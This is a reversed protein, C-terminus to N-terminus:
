RRTVEPQEGILGISAVTDDDNLRMVRVGQTTRGIVPIDKVDVRITQGKTSIMLVEATDDDLARVTILNGTKSTVVAAKIGIGGRKHTPFNSVKTIKGYGNMSMVLLQLDERALDMGVVRDGQRLRIGRVGRAARGMPRADSEKFRIAQGFATSIVVEDNGSSLSVWRLEDDKDLNITILGSNRINAYDKIPTKKVTGHTTAM